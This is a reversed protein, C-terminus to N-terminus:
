YSFSIDLGTHKSIYMWRYASFIYQLISIVIVIAIYKLEIVQILRLFDNGYNKFILYLLGLSILYKIIIFFKKM